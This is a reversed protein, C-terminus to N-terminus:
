ADGSSDIDDFVLITAMTMATAAPMVEGHSADDRAWSAL